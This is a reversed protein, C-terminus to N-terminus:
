AMFDDVDADNIYDENQALLSDEGHVVERLPAMALSQGKIPVFEEEELTNNGNADMVYVDAVGDMDVDIFAVEQGDMRVVAVDMQNGNEVTVTEYSLVEVEVETVPKPPEPKIPEPKPPEPKVPTPGPTPSIPPIPSVVANLENSVAEGIIMGITAGVASSMGTAVESKMSSKAEKKM